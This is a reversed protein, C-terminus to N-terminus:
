LESAALRQKMELRHPFNYKGREIKAHAHAWVWHFLQLEVSLLCVSLDYYCNNGRQIKKRRLAWSERDNWLQCWLAISPYLPLSFCYCVWQGGNWLGQPYPLFGSVLSSCVRQNPKLLCEILSLPLPMNQSSVNQAVAAEWASLASKYRLEPVTHPHVFWLDSECNSLQVTFSNLNLRAPFIYLCAANIM